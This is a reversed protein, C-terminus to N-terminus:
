CRAKAKFLPVRLEGSFNACHSLLFFFASNMWTSGIMQKCYKASVYQPLNMLGWKLHVRHRLEDWCFCSIDRIDRIHKDSFMSPM